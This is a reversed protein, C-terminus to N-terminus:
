VLAIGSAVARLRVESGGKEQEEFMSSANKLGPIAVRTFEDHEGTTASRINSGKGLNGSCTFADSFLIPYTPERKQTQIRDSKRKDEKEGRERERKREYHQQTATKGELGFKNRQAM